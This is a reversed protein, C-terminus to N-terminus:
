GCLCREIFGLILRCNRQDPAWLFLRFISKSPGFGIRRLTMVMGKSRSESKQSSGLGRGCLGRLWLVFVGDVFVGLVLADGFALVKLAVWRKLSKQRAKYVAGMAGQAVFKTVEFDSLRANLEAPSLPRAPVVGHNSVVSQEIGQRLLCLPCQGNPAGKPIAQQCGLCKEVKVIM